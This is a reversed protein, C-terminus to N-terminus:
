LFTTTLFSCSAHQERAVDAHPCGAACWLQVSAVAHGQVRFLLASAWVMRREVTMNHTACQNSTTEFLECDSCVAPSGSAWTAPTVLPKSLLMLRMRMLIAHKKNNASDYPQSFMCGVCVQSRTHRRCAISSVPVYVLMHQWKPLTRTLCVQQVRAEVLPKSLATLRKEIDALRTEVLGVAGDALRQELEGIRRADRDVHTLANALMGEVSAKVVFMSHELQNAIALARDGAEMAGVAAAAAAADATSERYGSAESETGGTAIAAGMADGYLSFSSVAFRSSQQLTRAAIGVTARQQWATATSAPHFLGM